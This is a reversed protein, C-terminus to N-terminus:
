KIEKSVKGQKLYKATGLTNFLVGRPSWNFKYRLSNNAHEPAPLGGCYSHYSTIVGGADKVDEFVQMALMHDIGPDLGM